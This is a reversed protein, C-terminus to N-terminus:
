SCIVLLMCCKRALYLPSDGHQTTQHIDALPALASVLQLSGSLCSCHFISFGNPLVPLNINLGYHYVLTLVLKTYSPHKGAEKAKSCVEIELERTLSPTESRSSNRVLRPLAPSWLPASPSEEETNMLFGDDEYHNTVAEEKRGALNQVPKCSGLHSAGFLTPVFKRLLVLMVIWLFM